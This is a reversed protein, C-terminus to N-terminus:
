VGYTAHRCYRKATNTGLVAGFLNASCVANSAHRFVTQLIKGRFSALRCDYPHRRRGKYPELGLYLPSSDLKQQDWTRRRPSPLKTTDSSLSCMRTNINANMAATATHLARPVPSARLKPLPTCPVLSGVAKCCEMLFLFTFFAPTWFRAAASPVEVWTVVNEEMNMQHDVDHPSGVKRCPHLCMSIFKRGTLSSQLSLTAHIIRYTHLCSATGQLACQRANEWRWAARSHLWLHILAMAHSHLPSRLEYSCSLLVCTLQFPCTARVALRQHHCDVALWVFSELTHVEEHVTGLM